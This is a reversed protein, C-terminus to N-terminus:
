SLSAISRSFGSITDFESPELDSLDIEIDFKNELDTILEVIQMSDFIGSGRLSFDDSLIEEGIGLVKVNRRAKSLIFEKIEDQHAKPM